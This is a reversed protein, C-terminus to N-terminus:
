KLTYISIMSKINQSKLINHHQVFSILLAILGRNLKMVYWLLQNYSIWVGIYKLTNQINILEVNQILNSSFIEQFHQWCRYASKLKLTLIYVQIIYIANSASSHYLSKIQIKLIYIKHIFENWKRTIIM